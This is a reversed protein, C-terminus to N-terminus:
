RYNLRTSKRDQLRRQRRDDGGPVRDVLRAVGGELPDHGRLLLRDLAPRQGVQPDVGPLHAEGVGGGLDHVEGRARRLAGADLHGVLAVAGVLQDAEEGLLLDDSRVSSRLLAVTMASTRTRTSSLGAPPPTRLVVSSASVAARASPSGDATTRPAGPVAAPM